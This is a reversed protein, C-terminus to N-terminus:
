INDSLKKIEDDDFMQKGDKKYSKMIDKFRKIYSKDAEEDDMEEEDQSTNDADDENDNSVPAASNISPLKNAEPDDVDDFGLEERLENQTLAGIDKLLKVQENRRTELASIDRSNYTIQYRGELDGFRPMLFRTLEEFIKNAYHEVTHDYLMLQSVAYNSLTMKDASVMPLPIKFTSYIADLFSKRLKVYDMERNNKGFDDAELDGQLVMTRNANYEGSYVRALESKLKESKEESLATKSRIILGTRVGNKMLNLNHISLAKYQEIEYYIANLPSLGFMDGVFPNFNKVHYLESEKDDRYYRLQRVRTLSFRKYTNGGWPENLSYISPYPDGDFRQAVVNQPNAVRMELPLSTVKGGAIWEINGSLILWRVSDSFFESWTTQDDPSKLLDTLDKLFKEDEVWVENKKDWITPKISGVASAIREIADYLPQVRRYYYSALYAAIDYDGMSIFNDHFGAPISNGCYNSKTNKSKKFNLFKPLNM